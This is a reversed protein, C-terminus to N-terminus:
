KSRRTPPKLPLHHELREANTMSGPNRERSLGESNKPESYVEDSFKRIVRTRPHPSALAGSFVPLALVLLSLVKFASPM